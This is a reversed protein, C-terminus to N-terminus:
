IIGFWAITGAVQEVPLQNECELSALSFSSPLLCSERGLHSFLNRSNGNHKRSATPVHCNTSLCRDLIYVICSPHTDMCAFVKPSFRLHSSCQYSCPVDVFGIRFIGFAQINNGFYFKKSNSSDLHMMLVRYQM